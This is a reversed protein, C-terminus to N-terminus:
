PLKSKQKLKTWEADKVRRANGDLLLVARTGDAAPRAEYFAVMDGPTQFDEMLQESLLANARYPDHTKPDAFVITNRTYPELARKMKVPDRLPPLTNDHDKLYQQLAVGLERLNGVSEDGGPDVVPPPGGAQPAAAQRTFTRLADERAKIEQDLNFPQINTLNGAMALRLLALSLKTDPTIPDPIGPMAGTGRMMKGIDLSAAQPRYAVLYTEGGITTLQGRTYCQSGSLAELDTGAMMWSMTDGQGSVMFRRWAPTLDKLTLTLPYARGALAEDLKQAPITTTQCHAPLAASCALVAVAIDLVSRHHTNLM